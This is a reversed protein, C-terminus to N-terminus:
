SFARPGNAARIAAVLKQAGAQWDPFLDTYQWERSIRGPVSCDDLRVPILYTGDLPQKRAVDLAFRLESQFGGSKSVSNASLCAVFFDSAEIVSEILRPWNQGPRLNRRDMWPNIGAARLFDYLAEAQRLDELAYAIFVRPADFATFHFQDGGDPRFTGFGEIDVTKGELLCKLIVRAAQEGGQRPALTRKRTRGM